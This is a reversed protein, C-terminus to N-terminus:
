FDFLSLYTQDLKRKHRAYMRRRKYISATHLFFVACFFLLNIHYTLIVKVRIKCWVIDSLIINSNENISSIIFYATIQSM